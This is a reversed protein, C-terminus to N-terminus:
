KIGRNTITSLKSGVYEAAACHADELPHMNAGFKFKKRKAWELFTQEEFEFMYPRVEAQIAAIAPSCHWETEFMLSDVYTMIFPQQKRALADIVTKVQILTTLKDRYQSHIHKYYFNAENTASAPTISRWENHPSTWDFRDIWSWKIVFLSDTSTALETLVRDAIRLNGSAPVAYCQYNYSLKNALICPWTLRSPKSGPQPCTDDALESGYVFSCGFSKVIM